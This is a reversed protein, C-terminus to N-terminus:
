ISTQKNQFVYHCDYNLLHQERKLWWKSCYKNAKTTIHIKLFQTTVNIKLQVNLNVTKSPSPLAISHNLIHWM